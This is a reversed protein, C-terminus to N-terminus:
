DPESYSFDSPNERRFVFIQSSSYEMGKDRQEMDAGFFPTIKTNYM